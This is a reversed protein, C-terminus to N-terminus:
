APRYLLIHALLSLILGIWIILDVFQGEKHAQHERESRCKKCPM